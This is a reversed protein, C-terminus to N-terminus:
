AHYHVESHRLAFSHHPSPALAALAALAAFLCFWFSRSDELSQLAQSPLEDQSPSIPRRDERRNQDHLCKRM